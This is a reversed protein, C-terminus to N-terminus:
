VHSARARFTALDVVARRVSRLDQPPVDVYSSADPELEDFFPLLGQPAFKTQMLDIYAGYDIVYVNYREGPTDQGSYGRRLLHLVRADFLAMLMLSDADKQNVLFGRAKKGRIVEDIVWHLLALADPSANLAGAKDRQYWSLASKRIDPVSVKNSGANAAATGLVNLADRPVGEAARVLEDFARVDTFCKSILTEEDPLEINFKKEEIGAILHSVILRRFFNRSEAENQEFVMFEDLDLNAAADAGLEIGIYNGPSLEQRFRSQQEIAAIKITFGPVHSVTRILLEGMYPQAEPPIAIWEDLMLWIRRENLAQGISRLARAIDSVNFSRRESGKRVTKETERENYDSASSTDFSVTASSPSFKATAGGKSSHGAKREGEQSQEIDGTVRVQTVAELLGDLRSVFSTNALLQEDELAATLLAEHVHGMLDVFLRASREVPDVAQGMFLSEPSGLSTLDVYIPLDGAVKRVSELYRLAHTKGTGRRGYLIQHDITDLADGVGSDVFTNRLTEVHRQEARKPIQYLLKNLESMVAM